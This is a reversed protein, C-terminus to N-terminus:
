KRRLLLYVCRSLARRPLSTDLKSVPQCWIRGWGRHFEKVFPGQGGYIKVKRVVLDWLM